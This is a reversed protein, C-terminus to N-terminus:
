GQVPWVMELHSTDMRKHDYFFLAEEQSLEEKVPSFLPLVLKISATLLEGPTEGDHALTNHSAVPCTHEHIARIRMWDNAPQILIRAKEAHCAIAAGREFCTWCYALAQCLQNSLSSRCGNVEEGEPCRTKHFPFGPSIPEIIALFGTGDRALRLTTNDRNMKEPAFKQTM